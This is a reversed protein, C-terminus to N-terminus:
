PYIIYPCIVFIRSVKQFLSKQLFNMDLRFIWLLIRMEKKKTKKTQQNIMFSRERTFQIQVLACDHISFSHWFLCKAIIWIMKLSIHFFYYNGFLLPNFLKCSQKKTVFFFIIKISFSAINLEKFNSALFITKFRWTMTIRQSHLLLQGEKKKNEDFSVSFM